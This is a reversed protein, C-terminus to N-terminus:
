PLSRWLAVHRAASARWTAGAARARGAAALEARAPGDTSATVLAAAIAEDDDHAVVLAGVAAAPTTASAVVPAGAAMAELVPLGFGETVPVYVFARARRYLASLVADDVRGAAVVGPAALDPTEGWGAPGVVVLPWPEALRGRATGYAAVLRALNKRPELTSVTLLFEGTEGVGLRALLRGAAADDPPALHDAGHPVVTVSRETAGAGVLDRAVAESPVVFAAAHRLARALAAEHWSRGRPTTLEPHVRWALDHVTVVLPPGHRGGPPQALSVTHVVDADGHRSGIGHAWARTALVSPLPSTRVAFGFRDLPDPGRPARSATLTV